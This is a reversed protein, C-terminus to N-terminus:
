CDCDLYMYRGCNRCDIRIEKLKTTVDSEDSVTDDDLEVDIKSEFDFNRERLKREFYAVKGYTEPEVEVCHGCECVLILKM